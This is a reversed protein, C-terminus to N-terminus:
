NIQRYRTTWTVRGLGSIDHSLSYEFVTRSPFFVDRWQKSPKLSPKNLMSVRCWPPFSFKKPSPPNSALLKQFLRVREIDFAMLAKLGTPFPSRGCNMSLCLLTPKCCLLAGHGMGHRLNQYFMSVFKSIPFSGESTAQKAWHYVIQSILKKMGM